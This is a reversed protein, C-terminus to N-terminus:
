RLQAQLQHELSSQVKGMVKDIEKDTLTKNEDLLLLSIAYSKKDAGIKEGEFYDFIQVDKILKKDTNLAINKIKEFSISKDLLLSLDRKVSPFKPIPTYKTKKNKVGQLFTKWHITAYYVEQEIDFEKTKKAIIKGIEFLFKNQFSYKLGFSLNTNESEKVECKQAMDLLGFREFLSEVMGKIIYFDSKIENLKWQKKQQNGSIILDFYAEETYNGNIKHYARGFEYLKLQNNKRNLNYSLAQLLGHLLDQRMYNLENSLPNLIEVAEKKQRINKEATLSNSLIEYFGLSTLHDAVANLVSDQNPKLAFTISTNLKSPLDINNYGYIRLIEEVVDAPRTVDNKFAPVKLLLGDNEEKLIEIELNTLISKITEREISKGILKDCFDYSFPIEIGNFEQNKQYIFDSSIEASCIETLLKVAEQLVFLTNNPDIGREFRFSADTNLGHRKAAKRIVVPNFYASELFITKTQDSVGSDLGGFVGAICMHNQENCIMLDDEHLKREQNDLTIFTAGKNAKRVIVKNGTIKDLDFAHLPQGYSHLMFNTIDVVNNIPKLGITRLKNQLWEPSPAVKVNTLCVGAYIPCAEKDVVEVTIKQSNSNNKLPIEATKKFSCPLNLRKLAAHLDRAVGYHSMADARNPTLGIELVFDNEIKFFSAADQGIKAHADLVMIGDHSEGLGIEDEACIMGESLAGRIKSKKIEFPEGQTPYLKAGVIAVVVKQGVAVNPAGCVISLPENQGINVQTVKLRDADPHKECTIVEGIVIGALGGKVSQIEEVSEVELGIDTLIKATEQPSTNFELYSKLWNYSIKM